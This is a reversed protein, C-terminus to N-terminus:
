SAWVATGVAFTVFAATRVRGPMYTLPLQEWTRPHLIAATILYFFGSFLIRVSLGIAGELGLVVTAPVGLLPFGVGIM